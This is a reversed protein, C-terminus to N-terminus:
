HVFKRCYKSVGIIFKWVSEELKKYCDSSGGDAGKYFIEFTFETIDGPLSATTPPSLFYPASNPSYDKCRCYPFQLQQLLHRYFVSRYDACTRLYLLM